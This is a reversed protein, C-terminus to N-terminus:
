DKPYAANLIDTAKQNKELSLWKDPTAKKATWWIGHRKQYNWAADHDTRVPSEGSVAAKVSDVTPLVKADATETKGTGGGGGGTNSVAGTGTGGGGGTDKKKGSDADSKDKTFYWYGVGSVAILAIVGLVITMTSIGGSEETSQTPTTEM